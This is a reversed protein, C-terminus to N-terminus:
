RFLRVIPTMNLWFMCFHILNIIMINPLHKCPLMSITARAREKAVRIRQEIEAMHERTASANIVVNILKAVVKDFEMDM